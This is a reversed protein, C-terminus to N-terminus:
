YLRGRAFVEKVMVRIHSTSPRMLVESMQQNSLENTGFWEGKGTIYWTANHSVYLAAYTYRDYTRFRIIAGNPIASGDIPVPLPRDEPQHQFVGANNATHQSNSRQNVNGAGRPQSTTVPQDLGFARNRRRADEITQQQLYETFRDDSSRLGEVYPPTEDDSM